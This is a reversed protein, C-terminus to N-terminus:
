SATEFEKFMNHSWHGGQINSKASTSEFNNIYVGCHHPLAFKSNKLAAIMALLTADFINGDYNICIADVFLAWVAKGPEICLSSTPLVGSSIRSLWVTGLECTLM